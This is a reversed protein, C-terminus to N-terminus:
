FANAGSKSKSPNCFNANEKQPIAIVHQNTTVKLQCTLKILPFFISNKNFKSSGSLGISNAKVDLYPSITAYLHYAAKLKNNMVTNNNTM